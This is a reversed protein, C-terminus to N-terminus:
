WRKTVRATVVSDLAPFDRALYANGERTIRGQDPGKGRPAGEGYGAHLLEVIDMGTTVEGVPAFGLPDLRLNDALNIFLQTTRTNPGASAFTVRGRLNATRVSDDPFRRGRWAAGVATDGHMGFQAVFGKVVRFFRVGDYYHANALHFVRDAGRPAWRRRVLVDFPGKSTTFTVVFSDPGAKELAAPDPARLASGAGRCAGAGLALLVAAAVVALRRALTM